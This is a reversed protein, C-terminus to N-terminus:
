FSTHGLFNLLEPFANLFNSKVEPQRKGDFSLVFPFM